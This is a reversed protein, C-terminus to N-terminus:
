DPMFKYSRCLVEKAEMEISDLFDAFLEMDHKHTFVTFLKLM